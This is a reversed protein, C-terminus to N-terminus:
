ADLDAPEREPASAPATAGAPAASRLLRITFSAGGGPRGQVSVEGGHAQVIRWVIALGLGAGGPKSRDRRWFRRFVLEREAEAVGPGRDLVRIVGQTEVKVEVTSDKPSHSIANEILNRLAHFLVESEGRVWVPRVAGTLALRRRRSMALPAMYEVVREGLARLDTLADPDPVFTELEAVELLQGVIRGMVDIDAALAQELTKDELTNIRMRLVALPTRLEHAADATFERQTRFGEELRDLAHNVALALPAIEHPLRQYPLRLSLTSPGIASAMDSAELVPALAQRVIAYEMLVLLALIPLILWASRELFTSVIDDSIVDPLDLNQTLQLWVLQGEVREPFNAGLFHGNKTTWKGFTPKANSSPLPMLPKGDDATSTLVAGKADVLALDFSSDTTGYLLRQYPTFEMRWGQPTRHLVKMLDHEHRELRGREFQVETANLLAKFAFPLTLALVAVAAVHLLIIRWLLSNAQRAM